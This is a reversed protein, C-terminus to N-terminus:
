YGFNKNQIVLNKQIILGPVEVFRIQQIPVFQKVIVKNDFNNFGHKNQNVILTAINRHSGYSSLYGAGGYLNSNYAGGYNGFGVHSNYANYANGYANGFNGYLDAGKYLKNSLAGYNSGSQVFLQKKAVVNNYSNSGYHNSGYHNNSYNNNSYGSHSYSTNSCSYSNNNCSYGNGAQLPQTLFLGTVLLSAVLVFKKFM